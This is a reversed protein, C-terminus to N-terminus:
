IFFFQKNESSVGTSRHSTLLSFIFALFIGARRFNKYLANVAVFPREIYLFKNKANESFLRALSIKRIILSMRNDGLTQRAYKLRSTICSNLLTLINKKYVCTAQPPPQM